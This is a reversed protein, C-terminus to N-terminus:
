RLSSIASDSLPIQYCFRFATGPGSNASLGMRRPLNESIVISAWIGRWEFGKDPGANAALGTRRPLNESIVISAWIGRWESGKGPRADTSLPQYLYIGKTPGWAGELPM